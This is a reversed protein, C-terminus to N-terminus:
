LALLYYFFSKIILATVEPKNGWVDKAYYMEEFVLALKFHNTFERPKMKILAAYRVAAAELDEFAVLTELCSVACLKLM